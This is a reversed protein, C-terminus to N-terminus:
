SPPFDAGHLAPLRATTPTIGDHCERHCTLDGEARSQRRRLWCTTRTMVSVSQSYHSINCDWSPMATERSRAITSNRQATQASLDWRINVTSVNRNGGAWGQSHFPSRVALAFHRSHYSSWHVHVNQELVSVAITKTSLCTLDGEARSQRRRMSCMIIPPRSTRETSPPFDQGCVSSPPFDQETSPPFDACM